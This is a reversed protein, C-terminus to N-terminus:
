EIDQLARFARHHLDAAHVRLIDVGSDALRLSIALTEPDREAALLPTRKAHTLFSKRSHGILVRVPLDFFETVRRLIALSQMPTKGFGIGPDFIIRDLHVGSNILEEIKQEAWAKLELILNESKMTNSPDAPVTLSHTLVYECETGKLVSMMEPDSLGSVDNILDCGLELARSATSAHYTDVSIKPRFFRKQYRKDIFSLAPELRRWEEDPSLPVAGPRTSEAGLDLSQILNKDFLELRATIADAPDLAGGDSFSDPTLNIIGM